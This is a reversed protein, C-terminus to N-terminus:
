NAKWYWTPRGPGVERKIKVKGLLEERFLNDLVNTVQKKSIRSEYYKVRIEDASCVGYKRMFSILGKHKIEAINNFDIYEPYKDNIIKSLQYVTKVNPYLISRLRESTQFQAGQVSIYDILDKDLDLITSIATSYRSPRGPCGFQIQVTRDKYINKGEINYWYAYVLDIGYKRIVSKLGKHIVRIFEKFSVLMLKDNKHRQLIEGTIKLLNCFSKTYQNTKYNYLVYKPYVGKTYRYVKKFKPQIGGHLITYDDSYNPFLAEFIKGDMISSAIIFKSSKEILDETLKKKNIIYTFIHEEDDVLIRNNVSEPTECLSIDNLIDIFSNMINGIKPTITGNNQLFTHKMIENWGSLDSVSYSGLFEYIDRIILKIKKETKISKAGVLSNIMRDLLPVFDVWIEELESNINLVDSIAKKYFSITFARLDIQDFLVNFFNEDMLINLDKFKDFIGDMIDTFIYSKVLLWLSDFDLKAMNFNERIQAKHSCENGYVCIDNCYNSPIFGMRILNFILDNGYQNCFCSFKKGYTKREYEKLVYTKGFMLNIFPYNKIWGGIGRTSYISSWMEHILEHDNFFALNNKNNKIMIGTQSLSKGSGQIYNDLIIKKDSSYAKERIPLLKQWLDIVIM